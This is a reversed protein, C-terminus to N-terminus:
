REWNGFFNLVNMNGFKLVSNFDYGSDYCVFCFDKFVGMFEKCCVGVEVVFVM